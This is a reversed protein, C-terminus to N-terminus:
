YDYIIKNTDLPNESFTYIEKIGKQYTNTDLIKKVSEKTYTKGTVRIKERIEQSFEDFFVIEYLGITDASFVFSNIEIKDINYKSFAPQTLVKLNTIDKEFFIRKKSFVETEIAWILSSLIIFVFIKKM